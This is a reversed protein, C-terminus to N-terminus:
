SYSYRNDIRPFPFMSVIDFSILIANNPKGKANLDEFINPLYCSGNLKTPINETLTTCLKEVFTASNEITANCGKPLLRVSVVLKHTEYIFSNKGPQVNNYM